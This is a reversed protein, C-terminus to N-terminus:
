KVPLAPWGDSRLVAFWDKACQIFPSKALLEIVFRSGLFQEFVKPVRIGFPAYGPRFESVFPVYSSFAGYICKRKAHGSDDLLSKVERYSPLRVDGISEWMRFFERRRMRVYSNGIREPLWNAFFLHSHPEFPFLGNGIKVFAIGGPKLVRLSERLSERAFQYDHELVDILFVIDFSSEKFPLREFNAICTSIGVQRETALAQAMRLMDSDIDVATVEAGHKACCVALGGPGTGLDLVRQTDIATGALCEFLSCIWQGRDFSQLFYTTFKKLLLEHDRFGFKQFYDSVLGEFASREGLM